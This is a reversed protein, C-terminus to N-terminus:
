QRPRVHILACVGKNANMNMYWRSAPSAWWGAQERGRLPTVPVQSLPYIFPHSMMGQLDSPAEATAPPVSCLVTSHIPKESAWRLYDDTAHVTACVVGVVVERCAVCPM